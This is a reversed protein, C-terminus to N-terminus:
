GFPKVSKLVLGVWEKLRKGAKESAKVCENVTEQLHSWAQDKSKELEDNKDLIKLIKRYRVRWEKKLPYPQFHLNLYNWVSLLDKITPPLRGKKLTKQWHEARLRSFIGSVEMTAVEKKLYNQISFLEIINRLWTRVKRRGAEDASPLYAVVSRTGPLLVEDGRSLNDVAREGEEPQKDLSLLPM